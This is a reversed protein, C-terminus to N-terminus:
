ARKFQPLTYGPAVERFVVEVPMDAQLEDEPCDVINTVMRLGPEEVLEVVAYVYPSHEAFYRDIHAVPITWAYLTGRGSVQAPALDTSLCANCVPRPYHVYHGCAQCRLIMLRHANVGDWFFRTLDDPIPVPPSDVSAPQTM